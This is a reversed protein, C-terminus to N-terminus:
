GDACLVYARISWAAGTPDEEAGYVTTATPPTTPSGDTPYADDIIVDGTNGLIEAASGTAVQFTPDCSVGTGIDSFPGAAVDVSLVEQGVVPDACIALANVTWDGSFADVEVGQVDVEDAPTGPGGNDPVIEDIAVEGDGGRITGGTGLLTKGESCEATVTKDPDSDQVSESWIWELGDPEDACTAFAHVRWSPAYADTEKGTVSVETLTENPYIDDLAVSGVGGSIYGGANIVKKGNPCAIAVSKAPNSNSPSELDVRIVGTLAQPVPPTASGPAAVAVSAGLGSMLTIAGLLATRRWRPRHRRSPPGSPSRTHM